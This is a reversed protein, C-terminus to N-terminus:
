SPLHAIVGPLTKGPTIKIHRVTLCFFYQTALVLKYKGGKIIACKIPVNVVIQNEVCDVEGVVLVVIEVLAAIM